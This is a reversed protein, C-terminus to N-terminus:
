NKTGNVLTGNQYWKKSGCGFWTCNTRRLRVTQIDSKSNCCLRSPTLKFGTRTIDLYRWLLVHIPGPEWQREVNLNGRSTAATRFEFIVWGRRELLLYPKCNCKDLCTRVLAGKAHQAPLYAEGAFAFVHQNKCVKRIALSCVSLCLSPVSSADFACLSPFSLLLSPLFSLFFLIM